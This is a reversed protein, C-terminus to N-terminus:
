IYTGQQVASIIKDLERNSINQPTAGEWRKRVKNRIESKSADKGAARITDNMYWVFLKDQVEPTFLTDGTIGVDEFGGRAKIDRLTAGVFQYKGVPTHIKGADSQKKSWQAYEGDLKVFDLVEDMTSETAKFDFTNRHSQKWLADPNNSSEAMTLKNVPGIGYDEDRALLSSGTGSLIEKKRKEIYDIIEPIQAENQEVTFPIRMSQKLLRDIDIGFKQKVEDRIISLDQAEAVERGTQTFFSIPRPVLDGSISNITDRFNNTLTRQAQKAQKSRRAKTRRDREFQQFGTLDEDDDGQPITAGTVVTQEEDDKFFQSEKDKQRVADDQTTGTSVENAIAAGMDENSVNPLFTLIEQISTTPMALEIKNLMDGMGFSSERLKQITNISPDQKVVADIIIAANTLMSMKADENDMDNTFTEADLNFGNLAKELKSQQPNFSQNVQSSKALDLQKFFVNNFPKFVLQDDKIELNDVLEIIKGYTLKQQEEISLGKRGLDYMSLALVNQLESFVAANKFDPATGDTLTVLEELVEKRAKTTVDMKADKFNNSVWADDTIYPIASEIRNRAKTRLEDQQDTDLLYFSKASDQLIEPNNNIIRQGDATSGAIMALENSIKSGTQLALALHSAGTGSVFDIELGFQNKVTEEIVTTPAGNKKATDIFKTVAAINDYRFDRSFPRTAENWLQLPNITENNKFKQRVLMNFRKEIKDSSSYLNATKAITDAISAKITAFPIDTNSLINDKVVGNIEDQTVNTKVNGALISERTELAKAIATDEAFIRNYNQQVLDRTDQNKGTAIQFLGMNAKTDQLSKIQATRETVFTDDYMDFPKDNEWLTKARQQEVAYSNKYTAYQQPTILGKNLANELDNLSNLKLSAVEPNGFARSAAQSAWINEKTGYKNMLSDRENSIENARAYNAVTSISENLNNLHLTDLKYNANYRLEDAGVGLLSAFIEENRQKERDKMARDYQKNKWDRVSQMKYEAYEISNMDSVNKTM